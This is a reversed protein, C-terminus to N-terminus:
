QGGEAILSQMEECAPVHRASDPGRFVSPCRMSCFEPQATKLAVLLAKREKLFRNRQEIVRQFADERKRDIEMFDDHTV